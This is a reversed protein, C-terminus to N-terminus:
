QEIIDCSLAREDNRINKNLGSVPFKNGMVLDPQIQTTQNWCLSSEGMHFILMYFYIM